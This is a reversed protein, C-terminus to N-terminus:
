KINFLYKKIRDEGVKEIAQQMGKQTNFYIGGQSQYKSNSTYEMGGNNHNFFMYYKCERNSWDVEDELALRELEAIVMRKEVVFEAEKRTKYVNGIEYRKADWCDDKWLTEYIDGSVGSVFYSDGYKPKWVKSEPKEIIKQLEELQTKLVNVQAIAEQKNM